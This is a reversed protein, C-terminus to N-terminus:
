TWRCQCRKSPAWHAWRRAPPPTITITTNSSLISHFPFQMYKPIPINGFDAFNASTEFKKTCGLSLNLFPQVEKKRKKAKKQSNNHWRKASSTGGIKSFGLAFFPPIKNHSSLFSRCDLGFLSVANGSTQCGFIHDWSIHCWRFRARTDPVYVM